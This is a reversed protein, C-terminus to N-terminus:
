LSQFILADIKETLDPRTLFTLDPSDIDDMFINIKLITTEGRYIINFQFTREDGDRMKGAAMQVISIDRDSFGSDILSKIQEFFPALEQLNFNTSTECLRM